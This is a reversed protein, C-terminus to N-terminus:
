LFGYLAAESSVPMNATARPMSGRSAAAGSDCSLTVFHNGMGVSWVTATMGSYSRSKTWKLNSTLHDKGLRWSDLASTTPRPFPRAVKSSAYV